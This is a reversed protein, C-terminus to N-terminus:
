PAASFVRLDCAATHAKAQLVTGTAPAIPGSIMGPQLVIFPYFVASITRGIEIYNTPDRNEFCVAQPLASMDGWLINEETLGIAQVADIGRDETQTLTKRPPAFTQSRTGNTVKVRVTM